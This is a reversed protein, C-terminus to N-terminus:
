STSYDHLNHIVKTLKSAECTLCTEQREYHCSANLLSILTQEIRFVASASVTATLYVCALIKTMCVSVIESVQKMVAFGCIFDHKQM